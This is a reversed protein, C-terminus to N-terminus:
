AILFVVEDEEINCSLSSVIRAKSRKAAINAVFKFGVVAITGACGINCVGVFCVVDIMEACGLTFRGLINCSGGGFGISFDEILSKKMGSFLISVCGGGFIGLLFIGGSM